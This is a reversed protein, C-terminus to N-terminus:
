AVALDALREFDREAAHHAMQVARPLFHTVGDQARAPPSGCSIRRLWFVRAARGRCHAPRWSWDRLRADDPTTRRTHRSTRLPPFIQRAGQCLTPCPLAFPKATAHPRTM